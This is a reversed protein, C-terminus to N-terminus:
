ESTLWGSIGSSSRSATKRTRRILLHLIAAMTVAITSSDLATQNPKRNWSTRYIIGARHVSQDLRANYQSLTRHQQELCSKASLQFAIIAHYISAMKVRINIIYLNIQNICSKWTTVVLSQTMLTTHLKLQASIGPPLSHYQFPVCVCVCVRVCLCVCVSTPAHM